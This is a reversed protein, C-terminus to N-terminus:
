ATHPAIANTYDQSSPGVRERATSSRLHLCVRDDVVFLEHGNLANTTPGSDATLSKTSLFSKGVLNSIGTVSFVKTPWVEEDNPDFTFDIKTLSPLALPMFFAELGDVPGSDAEGNFTM